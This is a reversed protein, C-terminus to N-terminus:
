AKNAELTISHIGSEEIADVVRYDRNDLDIIRGIYPLKGFDSAAVYILKQKKYIGDTNIKVSRTQREVAENEDIQCPIKKGNILHEDSFEDVNLFTNKIDNSIMDKFKSM